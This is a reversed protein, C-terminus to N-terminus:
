FSSKQTEYVAASNINVHVKKSNMCDSNNAYGRDSEMDPSVEPRKNKKPPMATHTAIKTDYLNNSLLSIIILYRAHTLAFHHRTNVGYTTIPTINVGIRKM